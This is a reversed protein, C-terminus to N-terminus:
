KKSLLRAIAKDRAAVPSLKESVAREPVESAMAQTIVRPGDASAPKAGTKERQAPQRKETTPAATLGFAKVVMERVEADSAFAKLARESSLARRLDAAVSAEFQEIVESMDPTEGTKELQSYFGQYIREAAWPYVGAIPRDKIMDSIVSVEQRYLEKAHAAQRESKERELEERLAKLEKQEPTLDADAPKKVKGELLQTIFKDPDLGALQLAKEGDGQASTLKAELERFKRELKMRAAQEKELDVLAKAMRANEPKMREQPPEEALPEAPAEPEQADANVADTAPESAPEPADGADADGGSEDAAVVQPVGPAAPKLVRDIARERVSQQSVM